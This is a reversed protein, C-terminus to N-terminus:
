LVAHREHHTIRRHGKLRSVDSYNVLSGYLQGLRHGVMHSMYSSALCGSFVAVPTCLLLEGRSVLRSFPSGPKNKTTPIPLCHGTFFIESLGSHCQRLCSKRYFCPIRTRLAETGMAVRMLLSCSIVCKPLSQALREYGFCVM